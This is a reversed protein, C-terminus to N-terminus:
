GTHVSSHYLSLIYAVPFKGTTGELHNKKQFATLM